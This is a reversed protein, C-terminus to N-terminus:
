KRTTTTKKGPQDVFAIMRLPTQTNRSPLNKNLEASQDAVSEVANGLSKFM